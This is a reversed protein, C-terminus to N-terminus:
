AAFPLFLSSDSRLFLQKTNKVISTVKTRVRDSVHQVQEEITYMEAYHEDERLLRAVDEM